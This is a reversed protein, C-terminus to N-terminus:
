RGRGSVPKAHMGSGARAHKRALAVFARAWQPTGLAHLHTYSALLNKYVIGDARGDLGHGRHVRYATALPDSVVLRSHHFEHGRLVLGSSFWPNEAVVELEVYGHGEPRKSLEVEAPIVGVMEYRVKQWTLARSLYTLGACEAYTPLGDEIRAAMDARLGRNAELQATYLEPFGGGIYLGDM